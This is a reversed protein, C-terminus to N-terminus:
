AIGAIIAATANAESTAQSRLWETVKDQQEDSRAIADKADSLQWEAQQASTGARKADARADAAPADGLAAGLPASLGNTGGACIEGWPKEALLKGSADCEEPMLVDGAQIGAATLSAGAEFVAGVLIHDAEDRMAEVQANSAEVFRSRALALNDRDVEQEAEQTELLLVALQGEADLALSQASYLGASPGISSTTM